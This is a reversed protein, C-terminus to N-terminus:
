PLKQTSFFGTRWSTHGWTKASCTVRPTGPGLAEQILVRPRCVRGMLIRATKANNSFVGSVIWSRLVIHRLRQCSKSKTPCPKSASALFSGFVFQEQCFAADSLLMQCVFARLWRVAFGATHLHPGSHTDSPARRCSLANTSSNARTVSAKCRKRFARAM